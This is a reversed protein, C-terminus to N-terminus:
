LIFFLKIGSNKDIILDCANYVNVVKDKPIPAFDVDM